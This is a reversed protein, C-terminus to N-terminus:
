KFVPKVTSMKPLDMAKMLRYVRGISISIGYDRLLIQRIKAAGLRKQSSTYIELIM